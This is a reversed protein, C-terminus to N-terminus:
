RQAAAPRAIEGGQAVPEIGGIREYSYTIWGPKGMEGDDVIDLGTEVQQRVADAVVERLTAAFAADDVPEGREMALLSPLISEPRILSGVHTTLIRDM